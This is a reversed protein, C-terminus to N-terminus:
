VEYPIKGQLMKYIRSVKKTSKNSLKFILMFKSKRWLLTLFCDGKKQFNIVTDMEVINLNSNGKIYVIFDDNKRNKFDWM